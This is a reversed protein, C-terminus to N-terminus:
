IGEFRPRSVDSSVITDTYLSDMTSSTSPEYFFASSKFTALSAGGLNGFRVLEWAVMDNMSDTGDVVLGLDFATM